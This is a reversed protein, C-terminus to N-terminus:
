SHLEARTVTLRGDVLGPGKDAPLLLNYSLRIFDALRKVETLM